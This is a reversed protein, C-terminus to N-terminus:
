FVLEEVSDQDAVKAGATELQRALEAVSPHEFLLRLPM